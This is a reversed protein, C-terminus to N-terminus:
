IDQIVKHACDFRKYSSLNSKNSTIHEDVKKVSLISQGLKPVFLVNHLLVAYNSVRDLSLDDSLGFYCHLKEGEAYTKSNDDLIM